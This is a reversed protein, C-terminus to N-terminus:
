RNIIPRHKVIFHTFTIQDKSLHSELPAVKWCLNKKKVPQDNKPDVRNFGSVCIGIKKEFVSLRM